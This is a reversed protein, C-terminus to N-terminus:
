HRLSCDLRTLIAPRFITGRTHTHTFNPTGVREDFTKQRKSASFDIGIKM